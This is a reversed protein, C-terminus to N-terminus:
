SRSPIFLKSVTTSVYRAARPILQLIRRYPKHWRCRNISACSKSIKHTSCIRSLRTASTGLVSKKTCSIKSKTKIINATTCEDRAELGLSSVPFYRASVLRADHYLASSPNRERPVSHWSTERSYHQKRSPRRGECPACFPFRFLTHHVFHASIGRVRLCCPMLGTNGQGEACNRGLHPLAQKSYM